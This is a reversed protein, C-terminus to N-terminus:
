MAWAVFLAISEFESRKTSPATSADTPALVFSGWDASGGQWALAAGGSDQPYGGGLEVDAVVVLPVALGGGIEALDM